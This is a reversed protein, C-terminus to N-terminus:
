SVFRFIKSDADYLRYDTVCFGLDHINAYKAMERQRKEASALPDFTQTGIKLDIVNPRHFGRTLDELLIYSDDSNQFNSSLKFYVRGVKAMYFILRFLELQLFCLVQVKGYYRPIYDRLFLIADRDQDAYQDVFVKHYFNAERSGRDGEQLTKM